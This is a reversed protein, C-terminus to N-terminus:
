NLNYTLGIQFFDFRTSVEFDTIGDFVSEKFRDNLGVSYRTTLSLDEVIRFAAGFALGVGFKNLVDQEDDLVFDFIPGAQVNFRELVSYKFLMPFLISETAQGQNHSQAFQIEPQFALKNAVNIDVYFGVYFGSLGESGSGPLGEVSASLIFNHYGASVGYSTQSLGKFTSLLVISFLLFLKKM